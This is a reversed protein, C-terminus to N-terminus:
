WVKKTKGYNRKKEKLNIAFSFPAKGLKKGLWFIEFMDNLATRVTKDNYMDSILGLITKMNCFVGDDHWEHWPDATDHTVWTMHWEHCTDVMDHILWIMFQGHWTNGMDHESVGINMDNLREGEDDVCTSIMQVMPTHMRMQFFAYQHCHLPSTKKREDSRSWWRENWIYM